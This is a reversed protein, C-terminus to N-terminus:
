LQLARQFGKLLASGLLSTEASPHVGNQCLDNRVIAVPQFQGHDRNRARGASAEALHHRM